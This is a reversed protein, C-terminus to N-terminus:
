KEKAELTELWSRLDQNAKKLEDIEQQLKEVAQDKDIAKTVQQVAEQARRRV